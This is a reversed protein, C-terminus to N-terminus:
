DDQPRTIRLGDDKVLAFSGDQITLLAWEGPVFYYHGHIELTSDSITNWVITVVYALPGLPIRPKFFLIAAGGLVLALISLFLTRFIWKM